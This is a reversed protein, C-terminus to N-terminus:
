RELAELRYGGVALGVVLFLVALCAPVALLWSLSSGATGGRRLAFWPGAAIAALALAPMWWPPRVALALCLGACYATLM